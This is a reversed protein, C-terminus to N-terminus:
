ALLGEQKLWACADTVIEKLPVPQYGLERMAKASDIYVGSSIVRAMVPTLDAAGGTIKAILPLIQGALTLVIPPTARKPGKGGAIRQTM